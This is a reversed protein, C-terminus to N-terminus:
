WFLHVLLGAFALKPSFDPDIEKSFQQALDEWETML